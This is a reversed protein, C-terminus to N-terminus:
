RYINISQFSNTSVSLHFTKGTTIVRRQPPKLENQFINIPRPVTTGTNCGYSFNLRCGQNNPCFFFFLVACYISSIMLPRIPFSRLLQTKLAIMAQDPLSSKCIPEQFILKQALGKLTANINKTDQIYKM